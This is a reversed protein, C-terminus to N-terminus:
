YFLKKLYYMDGMIKKGKMGDDACTLKGLFFVVNSFNKGYEIKKQSYYVLLGLMTLLVSLTFLALSGYYRIDVMRKKNHPDNEHNIYHELIDNLIYILVFLVIIILTYNSSTHSILLFWVYFVIASYFAQIPKNLKDRDVLTVFFYLTCLGVVHKIFRNKIINKQINCSFLEALYNGSVILFFFFLQKSYLQILDIDHLNIM